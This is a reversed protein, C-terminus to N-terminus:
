MKSYFVFSFQCCQNSRKSRIVSLFFFFFFSCFVAFLKCSDSISFTSSFNKPKNCEMKDFSKASSSSSSSRFNRNPIFCFIFVFVPKWCVPILSFGFLSCCRQSTKVNLRSLLFRIKIACLKMWRKKKKYKQQQQQQQGTMPTFFLCVFKNSFIVQRPFSFKGNGYCSLVKVLSLHVIVNINKKATVQFILAMM